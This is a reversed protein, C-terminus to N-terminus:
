KGAHPTVPIMYRNFFDVLRREYPAGGVSSVDDHGAGDVIYLEKRASALNDFVRKGYEPRVKADLAGHIIMAPQTIRRADSEPRVSDVKFGAIRESNVLAADPIFDLPVFFMQRFYDHIVERLDAFPSEAVGCVLRNESALAQIATAAGFSSGFVGFPSCGPYRVLASDIYATLDRKEFYGFTCNIGGSEGHARSDYIICNFGHNLFGAARTLMDTRCSSIGHLVIITGRAREGPAHIFWGKLRISDEVTIDFEEPNAGPAGLTAMDHPSLPRGRPTCRHPRIPSYPLVNDIAYGVGITATVAILVTAVLAIRVPKKL